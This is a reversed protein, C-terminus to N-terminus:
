GLKSEAVKASFTVGAKLTTIAAAQKKTLWGNCALGGGWGGLPALHTRPTLAPLSDRRCHLLEAWYVLYFQM